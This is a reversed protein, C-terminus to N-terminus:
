NNILIRLAKARTLIYFTEDAFMKGKLAPGLGNIGHGLGNIGHGLGNIGRGFSNIGHGLSNIGHGLDNIGHGFGNTGRGFGNTGRGFDYRGPYAAIQVAGKLCLACLNFIFVSIGSNNAICSM